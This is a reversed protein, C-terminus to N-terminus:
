ARRMSVVLSTADGILGALSAMMSFDITWNPTNFGPLFAKPLVSGILNDTFVARKEQGFDALNNVPTTRVIKDKHFAMVSEGNSVIQVDGEEEGLVIKTGKGYNSALETVTSSGATGGVIGFSHSAELEAEPALGRPSSRRVLTGVGFPEDRDFPPRLTGPNQMVVMFDGPRVQVDNSRVDRDIIVWASPWTGIKVKVMQPPGPKYFGLEETDIELELMEPASEVVDKMNDIEAM